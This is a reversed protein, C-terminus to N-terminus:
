GARPFRHAVGTHWGAPGQRREEVLISTRDVRIVTWSRPTGRTRRSVATGAVVEVPRHATDDLDMLGARPVHTHGALVLDVRASALARLFRGRGAIRGPGAARPPHHLALVRVADAPASGLVAVVAASQGRTVRGRKWRWRPTSQLGLAALGDLRVVPDLDARVFRQYRRYPVLLRRVSVLPIDHNGAVVLAPGPLRDLLTRAQRFQGTRARMTLDGTVVTLAPRVAAVDAAVSAVAEPDHAGLHLDSLHAIVLGAAGDGERM